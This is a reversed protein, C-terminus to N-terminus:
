CRGINVLKTWNSNNMHDDIVEQRHAATMGRTSESINNIQVWLAEIIENDQVGAGDLFSPSFRAYCEGRHAHIHFQGIGGWITLDKRLSLMPSETFRRLLNVVFHCWIDYLVMLLTLLQIFLSVQYLCYDM